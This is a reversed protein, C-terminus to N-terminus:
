EVILRFYSSSMARFNNDLKRLLNIPLLGVSFFTTSMPLFSRALFQLCLAALPQLAPDPAPPPRPL